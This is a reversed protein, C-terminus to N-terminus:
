DDLWSLMPGGLLHSCPPRIGCSSLYPLVEDPRGAARLTGGEMLAIRDVHTIVKEVDHTTVIVTHGMRHLATIQSLVQRVGAFDLNAFPEDFILTRPQLALVGAVAVRRKEGGSLLHVPRDSLHELGVMGLASEVRGDVEESSLGLNEPGFAVDERVTEGLIQSDADQFVMGIRQMVEREHLSADIGDVLVTGRTAKLLGNLHRILTTKGSGNPGCLLLFEGDEVTLDIGRLAVTGDPYSHHLDRIEIM